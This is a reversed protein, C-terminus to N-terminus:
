LLQSFGAWNDLRAGRKHFRACGYALTAESTSEASGIGDWAICALRRVVAVASAVPRRVPLRQQAELVQRQLPKSPVVAVLARGAANGARLVQNSLYISRPPTHRRGVTGRGGPGRIGRTPRTRRPRPPPGCLGPRCAAWPCVGRPTLRALASSTSARCSAAEAHRGMEALAVGKYIYAGVHDPTFEIATGSCRVAEAHIRM